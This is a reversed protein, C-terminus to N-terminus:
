GDRRKTRGDGSRGENTPDEARVFRVQRSKAWVAEVRWGARAWAPPESICGGTQWWAITAAGAPLPRGALEEVTSFPLTCSRARTRELYAVLGEFPDM